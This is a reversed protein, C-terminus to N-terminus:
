NNQFDYMLFFLSNIFYISGTLYKLFWENIPSFSNIACHARPKYDFFVVKYTVLTSGPQELVYLNLWYKIFVLGTSFSILTSCYLNSSKKLYKRKMFYWINIINFYICLTCVKINNFATAFIYFFIYYINSKFWFIIM